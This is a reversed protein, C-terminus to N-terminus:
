QNGTHTGSPVLPLILASNPLPTDQSDWAPLRNGTERGYMGIAAATPDVGAPVTRMDTIVSNPRWSHPPYLDGYPGGDLQGVLNGNADLLHVFMTVDPAVATEPARWVMRLVRTAADYALELLEVGDGFRALPPQPNSRADGDVWLHGLELTNGSGDGLPVWEHAVPDVVGVRLSYRLPLADAPVQLRLPARAYLGPPWGSTPIDDPHLADVAAVTVGDPRDLHLFLGYDRDLPQLARLYVTAAIPAGPAVVEPPLDAGLVRVRDGFDARLARHAPLAVDLPSSVRFWDPALVYLGLIILVVMGTGAIVRAGAAQGPGRVAGARRRRLWLWGSVVAFAIAAALSVWQAAQELGTGRYALTVLSEGAPLGVQLLGTGAQPVVGLQRGGGFAEWGPFYLMDLTLTAPTAAQVQLVASEPTGRLWTAAVGDPLEAPLRNPSGAEPFDQVFPSTALLSEVAWIPTFEGLSTTGVQGTTREYAVVAAPDLPWPTPPLKDPYLNVLASGLLLALMALASAAGARPARRQVVYVALGALWGLAVMTFGHWRFPFELLDMFPLLVWIPESLPLAMFAGFLALGAFYVAAAVVLRRDGGDPTPPLSRQRVFGVILVVAAVLGVIALLVQVGGLTLPYYPNIAARDLRPSFATLEAPDLFRSRFDSAAINDLQAYRSELLAPLWFWAAFAMGCVMGAVAQWFAKGRQTVLWVVVIQAAALEALLLAVANHSLLAGTLALALWLVGRIRAGAFIRLIAWFTWPVFAWALYQAVNGQIFLERLYVPAYAVAAACVIGPWVGLVDRALKYAGLTGVALTVTLMGKLAADLPLGLWHFTATLFYPLPPAYVFLPIGLGFGLNESWRPLLIGNQWGRVWEASRILHVQGDATSPLGGPLLAWLAPLLLIAVLLWDSLLSPLRSRASSTLASYTM